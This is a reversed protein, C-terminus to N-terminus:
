SEFDVSVSSERIATMFESVEVHVAHVQYALMDEMSDFRAVLVLDYSRQAQVVDVGAELHRLGPIRGKMSLLTERAKELGSRDKLKFLVIHTLM